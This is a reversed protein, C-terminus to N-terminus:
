SRFGPSIINQEGTSFLEGSIKLFEECMVDINELTHGAGAPDTYWRPIFGGARTGLCKSMKRAYVRIAEPNGAAMTKQIDVCSFFNIKGLFNDRLNELGMNEQQDMHIANLGIEALDGLIDVIYGCSHLWCDMGHKHAADFVRKYAPKWIARWQEPNIMLRNQLGWDDVIMIGDTGFDAYRNIAQINREVIIGLLEEVKPTEEIIDCWFNELGRLFYLREYISCVHSMLYRNGALTRATKMKEWRREEM